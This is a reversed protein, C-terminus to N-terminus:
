SFEADAAGARRGAWTAAARALAVGRAVVKRRWMPDSPCLVELLRQRAPHDLNGAGHHHWRNEERLAHLVTLMPHTGLEQLIFDLAARPLEQPLRAGMGGRIHYGTRPVAALRRGLERELSETGSAGPGPESYLLEDAWRGLGTHVDVAFLYRAHQLHQRLWELYRHPAEQLETGGYFLGRPFEYQGEAVAQKLVHFGHRLALAQARVLFFDRAPPSAPNLTADIKRYAAPAGSWSEGRRLFNRNLDVNNENTRRLWAMGWPNLVHVLVLASGPAIAPPDDLLAHQVASGAFAEVGHLGSTHLLAARADAPGLWAIDITLTEGIPGAAALPLAHLGAGIRRAAARFRERATAYDPAFFREAGSVGANCAGGADPM